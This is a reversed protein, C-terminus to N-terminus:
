NKKKIYCERHKIIKQPKLPESWDFNDLYCINEM